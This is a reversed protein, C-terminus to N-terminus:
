DNGVAAWREVLRREHGGPAVGEALGVNLSQYRINTGNRIRRVAGGPGDIRLILRSGSHSIRIMEAVAWTIGGVSILSGSSRARCSRLMSASLCSPASM